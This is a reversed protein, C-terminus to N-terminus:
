TVEKLSWPIGRNYIIEVEDGVKNDLDDMHLSVIIGCEMTVAAIDDKNIVIEYIKSIRKM